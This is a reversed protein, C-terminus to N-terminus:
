IRARHGPPVPTEIDKRRVIVECQLVPPITDTAPATRLNKAVIDGRIETRHGPSLSTQIDKYNPFIKRQAVPPITDTAPATRFREARPLTGTWQTGHGPSM